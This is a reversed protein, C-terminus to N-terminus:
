EGENRRTMTMFKTYEKLFALEVMGTPGNRQKAVIIDAIGIKETDPNYYEDRYIFMVVDADQELSGSERLDSMIPRKDQRQEVSRSLQALAMIPVGLEKALGKLSRSINAIEQQRNETRSSGQMLQLYDIVILGLGKEMHLRRAKSRLQSVTLVGSDDIFIPLKAIERAKQTLKGWDEDSIFGTRMKHQDVMAEACLMRQVLQEKSMELSFVAVPKNIKEAANYAICMGFSTKGMSPRGAVIVLDGPQLGQCLHDLDIFGTPVGNIEGKNKYLHELHKFTDMLIDKIEIFLASTRRSGLEMLMKEAEEMLREADESGEYGMGAIRTALNILNRLLAKEEIIHAYHEANAATPSINSLTAVYTAGGVKELAGRRRLQDTVTVLDAAQGYEELELITKFIVRHAEMYFDEPSLFRTVIAIASNDLFLAGLVAQEADINHPPVKDWMVM